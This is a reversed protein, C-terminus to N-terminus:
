YSGTSPERIDNDRHRLRLREGNEVQGSLPDGLVLGDGGEDDDEARALTWDSKSTADLDFYDLSKLLLQDLTTDPDLGANYSRGEHEVQITYDQPM